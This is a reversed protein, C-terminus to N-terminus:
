PTVIGSDKRIWQQTLIRTAASDAAHRSYLARFLGGWCYAGGPQDGGVRLAENPAGAVLNSPSDSATITARERFTRVPSVASSVTWNIYTAAGTIVPGATLGPSSLVPEVYHYRYFGSQYATFGRGVTAARTGAYFATESANDTEHVFYM